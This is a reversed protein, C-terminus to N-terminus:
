LHQFYNSELHNAYKSTFYFEDLLRDIKLACENLQCFQQNQPADLKLTMVTARTTDTQVRLSGYLTELVTKLHQFKKFLKEAEVFSMTEFKSAVGLAHSINLEQMMDDYGTTIKQCNVTTVSSKAYQEWPLDQDKLM